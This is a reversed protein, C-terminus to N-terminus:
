RMKSAVDLSVPSTHVPVTGIDLQDVLLLAVHVPTGLPPLNRAFARFM